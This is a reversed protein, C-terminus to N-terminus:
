VCTAHTADPLQHSMESNESFEHTARSESAITRKCQLGDARGAEIGYYHYRLFSAWLIKRHSRRMSRWDRRHQAVNIRSYNGVEWEKVVLMCILDDEQTALHDIEGDARTSASWRRQRQKM